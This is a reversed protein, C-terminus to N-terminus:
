EKSGKHKGIFGVMELCRRLLMRARYLIVWCITPTIDLDKCIEKTSIGNIERYVFVDANRQLLQSLCLYFHDLFEKNDLSKVPDARWNEPHIRWRGKENFFTELDETNLAVDQMFVVSKNKRYHDIVKHKLIGFLRIKESSRGKFQDRSRIAALFTEQVLDEATERNKVRAYAFRFLADGYENVWTDTNIEPADKM